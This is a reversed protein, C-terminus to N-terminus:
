KIGKDYLMKTYPRREIASAPVALANMVATITREAEAVDEARDVMVEIEIFHGLGVIEVL